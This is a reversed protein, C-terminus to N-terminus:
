LDNTNVIENIDLGIEESISEITDGEKITYTDYEYYILLENRIEQIPFFKGPCSTENVEGHGVIQDVNYKRILVKSLKLLSEYQKKPFVESEYNGQVCIGISNANHYRCHAGITEEPRGQYLDGEKTIFYHYGIGSWGRKLHWSHIDYVSCSSHDAHHYVLM